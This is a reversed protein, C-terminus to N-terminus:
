ADRAAMAVLEAHNQLYAAAESIIFADDQLLGLARNCSGCLIGRVRGTKHDHDVHGTRLFEIARMCIACKHEQHELMEQVSKETIGYRRRLVSARVKEPNSQVWRRNAAM